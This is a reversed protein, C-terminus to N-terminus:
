KSGSKEEAIPNQNVPPCAEVVAGSIDHRHDHQHTYFAIANETGPGMLKQYEPDKLVSEPKGSCCVHQNLCVVRDSAAMVIHLDHSVLLVGCGHEDRIEEILRYLDAQGAYDVGQVPEDLILLEPDDILARALMVRQIEGGSLDSVQRHELHKVGVRELTGRLHEDTQQDKFTLFRKVTMPIIKDISFKQPVYGLHLHPKRHITGTTPEIVGLILRVLTSKGAGNPGIITVIEGPMVELDISQLVTKGARTLSLGEASVLPKGNTTGRRVPASLAPAPEPM